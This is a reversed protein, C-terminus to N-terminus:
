GAVRECAAASDVELGVTGVAPDIRDVSGGTNDVCLDVDRGPFAAEANADQKVSLAFIPLIELQGLPRSQQAGKSLANSAVSVENAGRRIASPSPNSGGSGQPDDTKLVSANTREAM